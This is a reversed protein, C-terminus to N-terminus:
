AAPLKVIFTAGQDPSSTVNITGSYNELIRLCESLGLGYGPVAITGKAREFRRFIRSWDSESIGIGNDQVSLFVWGDVRESSIVIRVKREKARYKLANDVLNQIVRTLQFANASVVQLDGIQIEADAAAIKSELTKIADDVCAAVDVIELQPDMQWERSHELLAHIFKNMQRAADLASAIFRDKQSPDANPPLHDVGELYGIVANLPTNLDHAVAGSFRLLKENAARLQYAVSGYSTWLFGISWSISIAIAFFVIVIDLSVIQTGIHLPVEDFPRLAARLVIALAFAGFMYGLFRCGPRLAHSKEMMLHWATFSAILGYLVANTEAVRSVNQEVLMFYSDCVLCIVLAAVEMYYIPALGQLRRMSRATLLFGVVFCLMGALGFHFNANAAGVGVLVAGLSAIAMGCSIEKLGRAGLRLRWFTVLVAAMVIQVVALSFLVSGISFM